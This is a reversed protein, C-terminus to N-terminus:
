IINRSTESTLSNFSQFTCTCSMYKDCIKTRWSIQNELKYTKSVTRQYCMRYSVHEGLTFYYPKDCYRKHSVLQSNFGHMPANNLASVLTM